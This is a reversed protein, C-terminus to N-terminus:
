GWRIRFEFAQEAVEFYFVGMASYDWSTKHSPTGFRETCWAAIEAIQSAYLRRYPPNSGMEQAHEFRFTTCGHYPTHECHIFKLPEM